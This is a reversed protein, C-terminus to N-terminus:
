HRRQWRTWAACLAACWVVRTAAGVPRPALQACHPACAPAPVSVGLTRTSCHPNACTDRGRRRGRVRPAGLGLPCFVGPGTWLRPCLDAKEPSEGTSVLSQKASRWSSTFLLLRQEAGSIRGQACGAGEFALAGGGLSQGALEDLSHLLLTLSPSPTRPAAGWGLCRRGVGIGWTSDLCGHQRPMGPMWNPTPTGSQVPPLYFYLGGDAAWSGRPRRSSAGAVNSRQLSFPTPAAQSPPTTRGSPDVQAGRGVMVCPPQWSVLGLPPKPLWQKEEQAHAPWLPGVWSQLAPSGTALAATSCLTEGQGGWEM